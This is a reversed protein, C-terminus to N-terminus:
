YKCLTSSFIDNKYMETFSLRATEIKRISNALKKIIKKLKEALM